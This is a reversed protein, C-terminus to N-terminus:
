VLATTDRHSIGNMDDHRIPVRRSPNKVIWSHSKRLLREHGANGLHNVGHDRIYGACFLPKPEQKGRLRERTILDLQLLDPFFVLAHPVPPGVVPLTPEARCEKQIKWFRRSTEVDFRLSQLMGAPGSCPSMRRKQDGRGRAATEENLRNFPFITRNACKSSQANAKIKIISQSRLM